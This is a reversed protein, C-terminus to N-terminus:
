RQFLTLLGALACTSEYDTYDEQYIIRLSTKQINEIKRTQEQTLSSHFCVSAYEARSRIFLIYIQLLDARSVGVYRLKTLMSMRGYASKCLETTNKEWCGADEEIWVGLVKSAAKQELTQMNLSLRTAFVEQSRSFVMYSSKAPNLKMLNSSTWDSIAQLSSQTRYSDPPLYQQHPGIDSPIHSQIDYERLIGTLHILELTELDDIYRFKDEQQIHDACDDSTVLYADQGILSGQPFGGVLDMLSSEASNFRVTCRRGSLYDSLLPVLSPRLDMKLFKLITITPDGRDFASDWDAGAKIVASRTTNDDLLRLIRDMLAVVMHEPGSGKKGGYQSIDLKGGIDQLIWDKTFSELVKNYDSTCAVKRVDKLIKPEPIKPVPCIWERKWLAPWRGQKLCANIINTLPKVLEVTVEKRLKNPLDIPLTSKTSKVKMLKHYVQYEEVQPPPLSPLYAPLKTRDLPEYQNSVAAFGQGVADACQQDSLGSLCEIHLEKDQNM